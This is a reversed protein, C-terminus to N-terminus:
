AAAEYHKMYKVGLRGVLKLAEESNGTNVIGEIGHEDKLFNDPNNFCDEIAQMTNGYILPFLKPKGVWANSLTRYEMGYSKPRFCGSKGYLKRRDQDKDWLTSMLGLHKDMSRALMYCAEMHGPDLPDVGDTWGIHIHGAASRFPTDGNPHPNVDKTYANYDPECGLVKAEDPQAAIYDAGFHAVPNPYYEYGPVMGTITAIVSNLNDAFEEYNSAPDINFELAMGDVQVAGKAVKLPAYKTGGILGFASVPKGGKSVFFEPDAGIKIDYGNILM